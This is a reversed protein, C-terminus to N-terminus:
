RLSARLAALDGDLRADAREQTTQAMAEIRARVEAMAEGLRALREPSPSIEQLKVGKQLAQGLAPLWVSGMKRAATAAVPDARLAQMRQTVARTLARAEHQLIVDGSDDALATIRALHPELDDALGDIREAEFATIGEGQKDTRPDLGFAALHLGAGLAAALASAAISTGDTAFALGIAAGMMMASALKLKIRPAKAAPRACWDDEARLGEGLVWVAAIFVAVIAIAVLASGVDSLGRLLIPLPLVHLAMRARTWRASPQAKNRFLGKAPLVMQALDSREIM